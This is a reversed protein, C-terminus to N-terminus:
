SRKRDLIFHDGWRCCCGRLTLGKRYGVEAKQNTEATWTLWFIKLTWLCEYFCVRKMDLKKKWALCFSSGVKAWPFSVPEGPNSLHGGLFLIGEYPLPVVRKQSWSCSLCVDTNTHPYQIAPSDTSSLPPKHLQIQIKSQLPMCIFFIWWGCKCVHAFPFGAKLSLIYVICIIIIVGYAQHRLQDLQERAQSGIAQKHLVFVHKGIFSLQLQQLSLCMRSVPAPKSM